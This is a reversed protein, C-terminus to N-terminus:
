VGIKPSTDTRTIFADLPGAMLVCALLLYHREVRTPYTYLLMRLSNYFLGLWYHDEHEVDVPFNRRALRRIETVVRKCKLIPDHIDDGKPISDEEAIDFLSPDLLDEELELIDRLHLEPASNLSRSWLLDYRVSIELDIFDKFVHGPGTQYYDLLYWAHEPSGTVDAIVINNSHHDGHVICEKIPTTLPRFYLRQPGMYRKNLEEFYVVMNRGSGEIRLGSNRSKALQKLINEIDRETKGHLSANSYYERIGRGYKPDRYWDKENPNYFRRLYHAIEFSSKNRLISAFTKINRTRDGAFSYMLGAFQNMREYGLKWVTQSMRKYWLVYQDFNRSEQEILDVPGFKVVVDKPTRGTEVSPTISLVLTYGKLEEKLSSINLEQIMHHSSFLKGVVSLFEEQIQTESLNRLDPRRGGAKRSLTRHYEKLVDPNLDIRLKANLRIKETFVSNVYKLLSTVDERTKDFCADAQQNPASLCSIVNASEEDTNDTFILIRCQPYERRIYSILQRGETTIDVLALHILHSKMVSVAKEFSHGPQVDYGAGVLLQTAAELWDPFQADYVMVRKSIILPHPKDIHATM